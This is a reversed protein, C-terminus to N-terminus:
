AARADDHYIVEIDPPPQPWPEPMLWLARWLRRRILQRRLVSCGRAFISCLRVRSGLLPPPPHHLHAPDVQRAEADELRTGVALPYLPM